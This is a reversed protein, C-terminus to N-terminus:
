TETGKNQLALAGKGQEKMEEWQYTVNRAELPELPKLSFQFILDIRWSPKAEFEKRLFSKGGYLPGKLEVHVQWPGTGWLAREM